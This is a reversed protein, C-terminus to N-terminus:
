NVADSIVINDINFFHLPTYTDYFQFFRTFDTIKCPKKMKYQPTRISVFILLLKLQWWMKSM